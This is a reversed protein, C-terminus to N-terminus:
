LGRLFADLKRGLASYSLDEYRSVGRHAVIEETSLEACHLIFDAIEPISSREPDANFVRRIPDDGFFETLAASEHDGAILCLIPVDSAILEYVKGTMLGREAHNWALLLAIHARNLLAIAEGRPIFGHNVLLESAGEASFSREFAEFHRGAYHVEIPHRKAIELASLVFSDLRQSTYLSGGYFVRIPEDIGIKRARVAVGASSQVDSAYGNSLHLFPVGGLDDAFICEPAVAVLGDVRRLMKQELDVQRESIVTEYGDLRRVIPDRVDMVFAAFPLMDALRCGLDIMYSPGFSVYLVDYHRSGNLARSIGRVYAADMASRVLGRVWQLARSGFGAAQNSRARTTGSPVRKSGSFPRRCRRAMERVAYFSRVMLPVPVSQVHVQNLAQPDFGLGESSELRNWPNAAVTLVDVEWGLRTLEAALSTLRVSAIENKPAFYQTVILISPNDRSM